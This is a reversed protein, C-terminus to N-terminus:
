RVCTVYRFNTDDTWNVGGGDGLFVIFHIGASFPTSSWTVYLAWGQASLVSSNNPYASYFASLEPQTPLRWGTQGNIAGACLASAGAYTYRASSIPMWTLGGQSVYGAPLSPSTINTCNVALSTVNATTTGGGGTVACTQGSPQTLVTVNYASGSAIQTAFTFAGNSSVTKNDGSNDQLVLSGSLGTVTGGITYKSIGGGGGTTAANAAYSFSVSGPTTFGFGVGLDIMVGITGTSGNFSCSTVQLTGMFAMTSNLADLVTKDACFASQSTPKQVNNVTIGNQTLGSASRNTTLTYNTAGSSTGGPQTAEWASIVPALSAATGVATIAGGSVPGLVYVMGSTDVALYNQSGPYYRYDYQQYQGSTATGPFLTPYKAVAYAFVEANTIAFATTSFIALLLLGALKNLAKM